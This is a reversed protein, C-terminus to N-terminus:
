CGANAIGLCARSSAALNSGKVELWSGAAFSTSGGFDGASNVSTVAPKSPSCLVPHLVFTSTYVHDQPGAVGDNNTANGAVYFYVNGVSTAPPTWTFTCPKSAPQSHEIFEIPASAPCTTRRPSNNECLVFMSSGSPTFTGAQGKAKDSELRATMQF